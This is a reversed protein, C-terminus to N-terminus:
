LRSSLFYQNLEVSINMKYSQGRFLLYNLYFSVKKLGALILTCYFFLLRVHFDSIIPFYM